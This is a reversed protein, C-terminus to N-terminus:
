FKPLIKDDIEGAAAARRMVASRDLPAPDMGEDQEPPIGPEVELSQPLNDRILERQLDRGGEDSVCVEHSQADSVAAANGRWDSAVGLNVGAVAAPDIVRETFNRDKFYRLKKALIPAVGSIMVVEKDAPMQMVEGPTMLARQTEQRSVMMHSLWPSLRHGTYNKQSRLETKTGLADSVRKATREDNTAFAIRVHCNDLIANNPGYAKEIQNLSQTILFARIGYGALFALATEFFDLRGLAPFEDLMLLLKRQSPGPLEETLRRGIQNLILRMLPRTRSLDSPPVVLYLSVPLDGAVLDMVGWDSASTLQAIVPDTYVELLTLVTSLVGSRENESKSLMARAGEAVKPHVRGKGDPGVLHHTTRMREITQFLTHEPHALFRACGALSKDDEAYLVHLIVAVLLAYGTKDWHDRREASGEPDVLIDAINQVDRVEFDGKRIELLPNYRPSARDTPDFRICPGLTSRWGSTLQWNEGKIDHVVCSGTWSLLTPVVLGVGKGSRTPAFALVHEPGAHRLYNGQWAGLFVGDNGLLKARTLDRRGAWRASGYTTVHREWRARWLSGLVAALIGLLGGSAAIAGAKAFVDPAYAEYAYWWQYLRWPLYVPVDGMLFWSRGLAPQYGLQAAAWQTAFWTAAIIIILVIFVQGILIKSPSM